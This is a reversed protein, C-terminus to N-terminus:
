AAVLMLECWVQTTGPPEHAVGWASSLRDVLRLGFGRPSGPAEAVLRPELDSGPDSVTIRMRDEFVRVDVTMLGDSSVEAHRVSNTVLESIILGADSVAPEALRPAIRSLVLRRARRPAAPGGTLQFSIPRSLPTDAAPATAGM